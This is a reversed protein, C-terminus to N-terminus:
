LIDRILWLLCRCGGYGPREEGSVEPSRGSPPVTVSAVYRNYQAVDRAVYGEVKPVRPDGPYIESLSELM